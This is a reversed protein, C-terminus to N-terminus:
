KKEFFCSQCPRQPYSPYATAPPCLRVPVSAPTRDAQGPTPTGCVLSLFLPPSAASPAWHMPVSAHRKHQCHWGSVLFRDVCRQFVRPERERPYPNLAGEVRVEQTSLVAKSVLARVSAAAGMTDGLGRQEYGTIRCQGKGRGNRSGPPTREMIGDVWGNIPREEWEVRKHAGETQKKGLVEKTSSRVRLFVTGKSLYVFNRSLWPSAPLELRCLEWSLLFAESILFCLLAPM